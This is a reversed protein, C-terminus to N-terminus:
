GEPEFGNTQNDFAAPAPTPTLYPKAASATPQAFRGAGTVTIVVSM